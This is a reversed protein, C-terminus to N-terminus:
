MNGGNLRFVIPIKVWSPVPKAGRQAPHFHWRKVAKVAVQDLSEFGSSRTIQIRRSNGQEDVLVRLVTTGEWGEKRAKKPYEPNFWYEYGAQTLGGKQRSESIPDMASQAQDALPLNNKGSEVGERGGDKPAVTEGKTLEGLLPDETGAENIYWESLGRRSVVEAPVKPRQIDKEQGLARSKTAISAAPGLRDFSRGALVRTTQYKKVRRKVPTQQKVPRNQFKLTDSMTSRAKKLKRPEERVTQEPRGPLLPESVDLGIKNGVPILGHDGAHETMFLAVPIIEHGQGSQSSWSPLTLILAHLLVSIGLFPSLRM